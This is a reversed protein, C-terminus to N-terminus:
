FSYKLLLQRVFVIGKDELVVKSKRGDKRKNYVESFIERIVQFNVIIIKFRVLFEVMMIISFNQLFYFVNIM